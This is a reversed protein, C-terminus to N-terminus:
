KKEEPRKMGKIYVFVSQTKQLKARADDPRQQAVSM